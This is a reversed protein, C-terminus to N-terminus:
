PPDLAKFLDECYFAFVLALNEETGVPVVGIGMAM